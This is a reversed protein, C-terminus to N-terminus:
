HVLGSALADDGPKVRHDVGEPAGIWFTAFAHIAPDPGSTDPENKATCPARCQNWEIWSTQPRDPCSRPDIGHPVVIANKMLQQLM